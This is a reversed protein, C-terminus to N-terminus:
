DMGLEKWKQRQADSDGADLREQLSKTNSRAGPPGHYPPPKGGQGEAPPLFHHASDVKLQEVYATIEDLKGDFGHTAGTLTLLDTMGAGVLQSKLETNLILKDKAAIVTAHEADKRELLTTYEGKAELEKAEAQAKADRDAQDRAALADRAETVQKKLALFPASNRVDNFNSGTDGVPETPETQPETNPKPQEEAM